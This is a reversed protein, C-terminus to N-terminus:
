NSLKNSFYLFKETKIGGFGILVNTCIKLVWIDYVKELNVLGFQLVKYVMPKAFGLKTKILEVTWFYLGLILM